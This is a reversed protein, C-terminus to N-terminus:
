VSLRDLNLTSHNDTTENAYVSKVTYIGSRPVLVWIQDMGTAVTLRVLIKSMRGSEIEIEVVSGKVVNLITPLVLGREEARVRAHYTYELQIRGLAAQKLEPRMAVNYIQASM